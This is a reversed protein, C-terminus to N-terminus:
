DQRPRGWPAFRRSKGPTNALWEFDGVVPLKYVVTGPNGYQSEVIYGLVDYEERVKNCEGIIDVLLKAIGGAGIIVIKRLPVRKKSLILRGYTKTREFNTCPGGDNGRRGWYCCVPVPFGNRFRGSM